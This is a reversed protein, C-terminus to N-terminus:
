EFCFRGDFGYSQYMELFSTVLNGLELKTVPSIILCQGAQVASLHFIFLSVLYAAHQM